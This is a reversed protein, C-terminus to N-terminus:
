SEAGFIVGPNMIGAPDIARKVARMAAIDAPSRTLHLWPAKAVGIGHEASISGGLEAVLRLVADTAREDEPEPGLVNVHLNGDGLHGFLVPRAGPVAERVVARVRQEFEPMRTLPLTVDLKHPIGERSISETIAERYHWLRTRMGRDTAFASEAIGTAVELASLLRPSPDDPGACDVLLYCGQPSAFPAEVGTHRCVLEVSEHFFAEISDIDRLTAKLGRFVDLAASVDRVGLLATAHLPTAAVLSLCARTVVALTGEAGCFLQGMDYGTNDKVLGTMRSIVSGDPLVAEIGIIRARTQGYRLVHVGGANTSITGGVTASARSALDVPYLMGAAAAHEQLRAITVGAEAVVQGAVTDVPELHDMRRLSVIVEGGRPVGGGVLGTNGGQPIIRAGAASCIRM